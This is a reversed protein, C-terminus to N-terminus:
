AQEAWLGAELQLGSTYGNNKEFTETAQLAAFIQEDTVSFEVLLEEHLEASLAAEIEGLLM